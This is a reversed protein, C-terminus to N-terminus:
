DSHVLKISVAVESPVFSGFFPGHPRAVPFVLTESRKPKSLSERATRPSRSGSRPAAERPAYSKTKYGPNLADELETGAPTLSGDVCMDASRAETATNLVVLVEEGKYIRSFAYIGAGNQDSWRVYQEGRSLAPHDKRLDALQKLWLYTPAHTDFKDGASSPFKYQGEPFMDPRNEPDAPFQPGEPDLRDTTQRFAQETGYYVLPIGTSFMLFAMAM